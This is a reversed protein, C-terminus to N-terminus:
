REGLSNDVLTFVAQPLSSFAVDPKGEKLLVELDGVPDSTGVTEVSSAAAGELSFATEEVPKAEEKLQVGDLVVEQEM